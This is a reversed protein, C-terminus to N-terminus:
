EKFFFAWEGDQIGANWDKRHTHEYHRFVTRGCIGIKHMKRISLIQYKDGRKRTHSNEWTGRGCFAAKERLRVFCM